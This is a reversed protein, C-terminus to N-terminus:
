GWIGCIDLYHVIGFGWSVLGERQQCNKKTQRWELGLRGQVVEKLEELAALWAGDLRRAYHVSRLARACIPIRIGVLDLDLGLDLSVLHFNTARGLVRVRLEAELGDVSPDNLGDNRRGFVGVVILGCNDQAEGLLAPLSEFSNQVCLLKLLHDVLLALGIGICM